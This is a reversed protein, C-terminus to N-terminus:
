QDWEVFMSVMRAYANFRHYRGFFHKICACGQERFTVDGYKCRSDSIIFGHLDGILLDLFFIVAHCQLKRFSM